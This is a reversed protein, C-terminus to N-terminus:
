GSYCDNHFRWFLPPLLPRPRGLLVAMRGLIVLLLVWVLLSKMSADPRPAEGLIAFIPMFTPEGGLKATNDVRINAKKDVSSEPRVPVEPDNLNLANNPTASTSTTSTPVATTPIAITPTTSVAAAAIGERVTSSTSSATTWKIGAPDADFRVQTNWYNKLQTSSVPGLTCALGINYTGPLIDGPSFVAFNFSPVILILGPGGPTDAKATQANSYSATSTADFLGQAFNAGTASPTPGNSAFQLTGPDTSDSVMYSQVRYGASASDGACGAGSPLKLTFPTGAAGSTLPTRANPDRSDDPTVIQAEGRKATSSAGLFQPSLLAWSTTVIMIASGAVGTRVAVGAIRRSSFSSFIMSIGPAERQM